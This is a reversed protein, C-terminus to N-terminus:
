GAAGPFLLLLDAPSGARYDAALGDSHGFGYACFCSAVGAAQAAYLDTHHDGIMVTQQPTAGLRELARIVPLPDPKKQPTSDGGIVTKFHRALDLGALLEVTLRYPKNTVVAMREAPHRALLERIGPYPATTDILHETYIDLFRLLQHRQYNEEGFARKILKTAGDGIITRIRELELPPRGLEAALLNLACGLDGVSDVLTGDLDFLLFRPSDV